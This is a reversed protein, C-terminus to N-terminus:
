TIDLVINKEKFIIYNSKSIRQINNVLIIYYVKMNSTGKKVVKQVLKPFLTCLEFSITFRCPKNTKVM